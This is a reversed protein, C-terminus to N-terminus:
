GVTSDIHGIFGASCRVAAIMGAPGNGDSVAHAPCYARHGIGGADAGVGIGGDGGSGAVRDIEAIYVAVSAGADRDRMIAPLVPRFGPVGARREADLLRLEGLPNGAVIVARSESEESSRRRAVSWRCIKRPRPVM